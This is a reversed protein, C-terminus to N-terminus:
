LVLECIQVYQLELVLQLIMDGPHFYFPILALSFKSTNLHIFCHKYRFSRESITKELDVFAGGCIFLINKTDIQLFSLGTISVLINLYITVGHILHFMLFCCDRKKKLFFFVHIIHFFYRYITVEQISGQEKKLCM